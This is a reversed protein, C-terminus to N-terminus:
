SSSATASCGEPTAPASTGLERAAQAAASTRGEQSSLDPVAQGNPLVIYPVGDEDVLKGNKEILDARSRRPFPSLASSPLYQPYYAQMITYSTGGFLMGEAFSMLSKVIPNPEEPNSCDRLVMTQLLYMTLFIVITATAKVTGRNAILDFMYYSFVTATVVLTQPTFESRLGSFGQVECGNYGSFLPGVGGQQVPAEAPTGRLLSQLTTFLDYLGKWFYKFIWNLPISILGILSAISYVGQLTFMDALVGFLLLIHPIYSITDVVLQPFSFGQGAGPAQSRKVAMYTGVISVIATVIVAILNSWWPTTKEDAM